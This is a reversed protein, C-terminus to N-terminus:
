LIIADLTSLMTPVICKSLKICLAFVTINLNMMSLHIINNYEMMVQSAIVLGAFLAPSFSLLLIIVVCM